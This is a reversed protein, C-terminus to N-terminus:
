LLRPQTRRRRRPGLMGGAEPSAVLVDIGGFASAAEAVLRRPGESTALDVAVPLVGDLAELRDGPTRAGAVVRADEAALAEVALGIGRSAGTVVAVKDRLMLDM